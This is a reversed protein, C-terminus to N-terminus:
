ALPKRGTVLYVVDYVHVERNRLDNRVQVLFVELRAQSWGLVRTFPATSMSAVGELLNEMSIAGLLRNKKGRSWPSMPVNFKHEVIDVFGAEHMHQAWNTSDCLNRGIMTM